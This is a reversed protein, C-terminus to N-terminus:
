VYKYCLSYFFSKFSLNKHLWVKVCSVGHRLIVTDLSYDIISSISNLPVSKVRKIFIGARQKKTLRGAFSIKFGLISKNKKLDRVVPNIIEFITYKQSLKKVFYNCLLKATINKNNMYFFKVFYSSYNSYLLTKFDKFLLRSIILCSYFKTNLFRDKILSNNLLLYYIFRILLFSIINLYGRFKKIFYKNNKLLKLSSLNSFVNFKFYRFYKFYSKAHLKISGSLYYLLMIICRVIFLTSISNKNVNYFFLLFFFKLNLVISSCNLYLKKKLNLINLLGYNFLFFKLNSDDGRINKLIGDDGKNLVSSLLWSSNYVDRIFRNKKFITKLYFYRKYNFRYRIYPRPKYIKNKNKKKKKWRFVREVFKFSFKNNDDDNNNKRKRKRKRKITDNFINEIIVVSADYFHILFSINSQFRHINVHSFILSITHILSSFVYQKVKYKKVQSPRLYNLQELQYDRLSKDIKKLLKVYYFFYEIYKLCILDEKLNSIYSTRNGLKFWNSVWRQTVGLRFSIPNVLHGM